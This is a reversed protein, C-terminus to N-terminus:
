LLGEKAFKKEIYYKVLGVASQLGWPFFNVIEGSNAISIPSLFHGSHLCVAMDM